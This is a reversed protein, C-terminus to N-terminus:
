EITMHNYGEGDQSFHVSGDQSRVRFPTRLDPVETSMGQRSATPEPRPPQPQAPEPAPKEAAAREPAKVPRPEPGYQIPGHRKEAGPKGSLNEAFESVSARMNDAAHRFTDELDVQSLAGCARCVKVRYGMLLAVLLSIVVLYPSTVLAILLYILSLNLIIDEGHRVQIRIRYAKQLLGIFGQKDQASCEPAARDKLRGQKELDLLAQALSGGHYELLDVAEEYTLNSCRRLTQIDELSFSAMSNVEQACDSQVM